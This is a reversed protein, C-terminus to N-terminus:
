WTSFYDVTGSINNIKFTNELYDYTITTSSSSKGEKTKVEDNYNKYDITYNYNYKATVKLSGDDLTVKTLTVSSVDFKKLTKDEDTVIEEYLDTYEDQLNILSADGYSYSEKVANWDKKAILNAYLANIDSKIQDQLKTVTEDNLDNLTINAKYTTNYSSVNMEDTVEIGYPLNIKISADSEFIQPLVYVDLEDTSKDANLYKSDLSVDNVQVTSGKPVSIQYDKVVLSDSVNAVQWSDFILFKKKSNKIVRITVTDEDSNESAVQFKVNASLKSENYSIDILKYNLVDDFANSSEAFIKEFTEKSTFTTDGTLGLSDYIRSADNSIMAKLYETAVGEPGFRNNLFCYGGILVLAVVVIVGILIKQKKSITKKPKENKVKSTQKEKIEESEKKVKTGCEGCFAANKKLKAGCESCYM